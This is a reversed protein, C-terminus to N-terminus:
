VKFDQQILKSLKNKLTKESHFEIFAKRLAEDFSFDYLLSKLVKSATDLNNPNIAYGLHYKQVRDALLTRHAVLVPTGLGIAKTLKNSSHQFDEYCVFAADAAKYISNLTEEPPYIDEFVLLNDPPSALRSQIYALEDFNYGDLRVLGMAFFLISSNQMTDALRLFHILGHKKTLSALLVIKRGAAKQLVKCVIPPKNVECQLYSVDPFHSIFVSNLRLKLESVLSENLFCLGKLSSHKLLSDSRDEGLLKDASPPCIYLGAWAKPLCYRQIILPINTLYGQLDLLFVFTEEQLSRDFVANKIILWKSILQIHSTLNTINLRSFVKLIQLLLRQTFLFRPEIIKLSGDFIAEPFSSKLDEEGLCLADVQYGLELLLKTYLLFYPRHHGMWSVLDVLLIRKM